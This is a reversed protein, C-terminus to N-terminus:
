VEGSMEPRQADRAGARSKMGFFARVPVIRRIVLEYLGVTVLFSSVVVLLLKPLIGADLQVEYFAILIIVPQHLVFFPLQAERWSELFNNSFDLFRM